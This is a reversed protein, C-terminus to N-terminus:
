TFEAVVPAHDSEPFKDDTAFAVSEDHLTENYIFTQKYFPVLSKSILIHDLMNKKGHHYLSFRSPEPVSFEAPILEKFNHEANGTNAVRGLITEIPVDEFDANFDGAIIVKSETEKEFLQDIFMRVELAQGVRRMASIFYGEAWGSATKWTYTNIMQSSISSPRKSKLHVNVTNIEGYKETQIKAFLAPREWTIDKVEDLEDSVVNYQPASAYQHKFQSSEVIEFRSLTILNRQSFYEDKNTKTSVKNYSEYQTGSLLKQLAVLQKDQSHVEQLFLIDANIRQLMPQLVSIRNEFGNSEDLNELNFTAVRM